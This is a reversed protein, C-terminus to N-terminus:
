SILIQIAERTFESVFNQYETTVQSLAEEYRTFESLLISTYHRNAREIVSLFAAIGGIVHLTVKKPLGVQQLRELLNQVEPSDRLSYLILIVATILETIFILPSRRETIRALIDDLLREHIGVEGTRLKELIQEKVLMWDSLSVSDGVLEKILNEAEYTPYFLIIARGPGHKDSTKEYESGILGHEELLKLMEYATVNGIGLKEAIFVYHLPHDMERYLDLFQNLFIRQRNTLKKEMM